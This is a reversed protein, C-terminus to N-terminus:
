FDSLMRNDLINLVIIQNNLFTYYLSYHPPLTIKRAARLQKVRIGLHHHRVLLQLNDEIQTTFKDAVEFSWKDLLYSLIDKYDEQAEPHWIIETDM